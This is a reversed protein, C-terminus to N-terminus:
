DKWPFIMGKLTRHGVNERDNYLLEDWPINKKDADKQEIYDYKYMLLMVADQHLLSIGTIGPILFAFLVSLIYNVITYLGLFISFRLNDAIILLCKKFTKTPKDALMTKALGFYYMNALLLVITVWLIIVAIIYGVINQYGVYFPILIAFSLVIFLSTFFYLISHHWSDKIAKIFASFGNNTYHAFDYTVFSISGRYISNVLISLIIIIIGIVLNTAMIKFGLYFLSFVLVFGVNYILLNVLNDWGDFFAKKIFFGVM